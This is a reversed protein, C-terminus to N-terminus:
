PTAGRIRIRGDTANEVPNTATVEAVLGPTAAIQERISDLTQVDPARLGIELVDNRYEIGRMQIRTTTGLIPAVQGLVRLLGDAEGGGRLRELRSRMVSEPARTREAAGLDPFSRQLSAAMAADADAVARALRNVELARTSFALVLVAAAIAAARRWWRTGRAHRHGSAFEGGLLNLAPTGLHSAFFALTDATREVRTIRRDAALAAPVSDGSAHVDIARDIGAARVQELWQPFENVACAFASWPGFRALVRDDEVLAGATEPGIPVALSEPLMVDAEIGAAALQDLWERLRARAVIAVGVQDGAAASVAFHQDEVAGLLQEEVAFPVAQLLQARNRASVRAETLLVDEAPVLVVVEGAAALAAPPPAGSQTGAVIRGDGSQRLWALRGDSALRLVLRDPM